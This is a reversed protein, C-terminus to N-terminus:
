KPFGQDRNFVKWEFIFEEYKVSVIRAADRFDKTGLAHFCDKVQDLVM